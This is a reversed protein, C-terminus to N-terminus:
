QKIWKGDVLKHLSEKWDCDIGTVEVREYTDFKDYIWGFEVSLTPVKCVMFWNGSNHKAIWFDPMKVQIDSQKNHKIMEAVVTDMSNQLRTRKDEAILEDEQKRSEDLKEALESSDWQDSCDHCLWTPKHVALYHKPEEKGGIMNWFNKSISEQIDQPLSQQGDNLKNKFEELGQELRKLDGSVQKCLACHKGSPVRSGCKTCIYSGILEESM